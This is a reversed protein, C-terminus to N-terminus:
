ATMCWLLQVFVLISFVDITRNQLVKPTEEMCGSQVGRLWGVIVSNQVCFWCAHPGRDQIAMQHGVMLSTM